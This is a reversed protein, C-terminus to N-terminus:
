SVPMILPPIIYQFQLNYSHLQYQHYFHTLYINSQVYRIDNCTDTMPMNELEPSPHGESTVMSASNMTHTTADRYEFEIICFNQNSFSLDPALHSESSQKLVKRGDM